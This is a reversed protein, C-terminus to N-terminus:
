SSDMFTAQKGETTIVSKDIAIIHLPGSLEGPGLFVPNVNVYVLELSSSLNKM